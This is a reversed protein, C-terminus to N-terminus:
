KEKLTPALRLGDRFIADLTFDPLLSIIALGSRFSEPSQMKRLELDIREVAVKSLMEAAEESFLAVKTAISFRFGLTAAFRFGRMVRLGDEKIRSMPNGVFRIIGREIDDEGNHPDLLMKALPDFAMANMTFDRRKLDDFINGAEVFDPRRGDSSPGDKRCLVFDAVSTREFLPNETPVKARITTFEPNEIFIEFGQDILTERMQSFSKAEVAFDVDNSPNGMMQDRVCGGVEWVKM